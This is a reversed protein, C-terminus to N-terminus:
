GAHADVVPVRDGPEDTAADVGLQTRLRTQALAVEQAARPRGAAMDELGLLVAGLVPPASLVRLRSLPAAEAMGAAIASMMLPNRATLVGGGLVVDAPTGDLRLRRLAISALSVVERAQREVLSCAVPDGADAVRFLLPVLEHLRQAPIAQLHVQEAVEMASRGGFHAAVAGALATAPGRGDESRVSWWMVEQALGMGGGWDGTMHGLALFRSSRGDPLLGVCNIGAGCVVAVGRPQDTGARLVAFTDNAVHVGDGWRRARMSDAIQVEEVPLDANALCAKVLGVRPDGARRLATRVTDEIADVARELGAVHPAFGPGRELALLTGDTTVVAVDTKSNGADMALLCQCGSGGEEASVGV